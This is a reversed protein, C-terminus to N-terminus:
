QGVKPSLSFFHTVDTGPIVKGRKDHPIGERKQDDPGAQASDCHRGVPALARPALASEEIRWKPHVKLPGRANLGKVRPPSLL